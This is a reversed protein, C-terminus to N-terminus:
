RCTRSTRCRPWSAGAGLRGPVSRGAPPRGLVAHGAAHHGQVAHARDRGQDARVRHGIGAPDDAQGFGRAPLLQRVPRGRAPDRTGEDRHVRSRHVQRGAHPPHATGRGPRQAARQGDLLQAACRRAPHVRHVARRSLALHRQGAIAAQDGDRRAVEEGADDRSVADQAGPVRERGHGAAVGAGRREAARRLLHPDHRQSRRGPEAGQKSARRAARHGRAQPVQVLRLRRGQLRLAHRHGPPHRRGSDSRRRRGPVLPRQAARHSSVPGGAEAASTM